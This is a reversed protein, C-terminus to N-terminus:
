RPGFIMNFLYSQKLETEFTNSHGSYSECSIHWNKWAGVAELYLINHQNSREM